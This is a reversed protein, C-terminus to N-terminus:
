LMHFPHCIGEIEEDLVHVRWKLAGVSIKVYSNHLVIKSAFNSFYSSRM